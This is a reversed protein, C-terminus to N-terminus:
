GSNKNEWYPYISPCVQCWFGDPNDLCRKVKKGDELYLCETYGRLKLETCLLILKKVAQDWKDMQRSWEERDDALERIELWAQFLKQNGKIVRARLALAEPSHTEKLVQM